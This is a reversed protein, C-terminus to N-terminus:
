TIATGTTVTGAASSNVLMVSTGTTGPGTTAGKSFSDTVTVGGFAASAVSIGALSAGNSNTNASASAACATTELPSDCIEVKIAGLNSIGTGPKFSVSYSATDGAKSSDPTVSRAGMQTGPTAAMAVMPIGVSVTIMLLSIFVRFAGTKQYM